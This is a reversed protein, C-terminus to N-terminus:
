EWTLKAFPLKTWESLDEPIGLSGLDTGDSTSFTSGISADSAAAEPSHYSGLGDQKYMIQWRGNPQPVISVAGRPTPFQYYVM